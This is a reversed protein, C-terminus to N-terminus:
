KMGSFISIEHSGPEEKKSVIQKQICLWISQQDCGGRGGGFSMDAHRCEVGGRISIRGLRKSIDRKRVIM